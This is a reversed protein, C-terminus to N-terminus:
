LRRLGSQRRREAVGQLGFLLAAQAGRRGEGQIAGGQHQAPDALLASQVGHGAGIPLLALQQIAGDIGAGEVMAGLAFRIARRDAQTELQAVLM